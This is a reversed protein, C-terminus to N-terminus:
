ADGYLTLALDPNRTLFMGASLRPYITPISARLRFPLFMKSSSVADRITTAADAMKRNPNREEHAPKIPGIGSLVRRCGLALPKLDPAPLPLQSGSCYQEPSIPVAPKRRIRHIFLQVVIDRPVKFLHRTGISREILRFCACVLSPPAHVNLGRLSGGPASTEERRAPVGLRSLFPPGGVASVRSLSVFILCRAASSWYRSLGCAAASM